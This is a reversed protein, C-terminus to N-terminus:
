PLCQSYYDNQYQCTTGAACQTPGTWLSGACQGYITQTPPPVGTTTSTTTTTTPCYTPTPGLTVASSTFAGPAYKFANAKINSLEVTIDTGTALSLFQIARLHIPGRVQGGQCLENSYRHILHKVDIRVHASAGSTPAIQGDSFQVRYGGSTAWHSMPYAQPDFHRISLANFDHGPGEYFLVDTTFQSKWWSPCLNGGNWQCSCASQTTTASSVWVDFEIVAEDYAALDVTDDVADGYDYSLAVELVDGCKAGKANNVLTVNLSGGPTAPNTLIADFGPSTQFQAPYDYGYDGLTFRGRMGPGACETEVTSPYGKTSPEAWWGYCRRTPGQNHVLPKVEIPTPAQATALAALTLLPLLFFMKFM